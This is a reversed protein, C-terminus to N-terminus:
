STEWSFLTKSLKGGQGGQGGVGGGLLAFKVKITTESERVSLSNKQVFDRTFKAPSQETAKEPSKEKSFDVGFDVAFNVDSNPLKAALNWVALIQGQCNEDEPDEVGM